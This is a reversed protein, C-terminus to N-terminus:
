FFYYNVKSLASLGSGAAQSLIDLSSLSAGLTKKTLSYGGSILGTIGKLLSKQYGLRPKEILDIVGESVKDFFNVPSGIIDASFIISFLTGAANYPTLYQNLLSNLTDNITAYKLKGRVASLNIPAKYLNALTRGLFQRSFNDM